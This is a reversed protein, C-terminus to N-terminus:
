SVVGKLTKSIKNNLLFSRYPVDKKKVDKLISTYNVYLIINIEPIHCLSEINTYM